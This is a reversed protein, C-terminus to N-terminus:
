FWILSNWRRWVAADFPDRCQQTRFRCNALERALMAGMTRARVVVMARGPNATVSEPDFEHHLPLMRLIEGAREPGCDRGQDILDSLVDVFRQYEAVPLEAGNATEAMFDEFRESVLGATSFGFNSASGKINHVERSLSMMADRVSGDKAGINTLAVQMRAIRDAADDIFEQSLKAAIDDILSM